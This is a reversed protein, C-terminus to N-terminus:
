HQWSSPDVGNGSPVSTCIGYQTHIMCEPDAPHLPTVQEDTDLRAPIISLQLERSVTFSVSNASGYALYCGAFVYTKCKLSLSATFHLLQAQTQM